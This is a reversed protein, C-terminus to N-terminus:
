CLLALIRSSTEFDISKCSICSLVQGDKEYVYLDKKVGDYNKVKGIEKEINAKAITEAQEASISASAPINKDDLSPIVQGFFAKVNNEKDLTVTQDSGYVPINNHKEVLKVHTTGSDADKEEGVINFHKDINGALKFMDKKSELYQFVTEKKDLGEPAKWEEGIYAPTKFEQHYQIKQEEAKTTTAGFAGFGSAIVTLALASSIVQKKLRVSGM